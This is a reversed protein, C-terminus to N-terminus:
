TASVGENIADVWSPYSSKDDARFATDLMADGLQWRVVLLGGEGMVKGALGPALRADRWAGSPLYVPTAGTREIVLGEPHLVATADAREGLGDHVVRDQWSQAFATGVYLGSSRLREAGLQEPVDPLAPLFAQRAMRNRWGRRMGLLTLGILLLCLLVLVARTM